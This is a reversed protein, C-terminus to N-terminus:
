AHHRHSKLQSRPALLIRRQSAGDDSAKRRGPYKGKENDRRGVQEHVPLTLDTSFAYYMTIASTPCEALPSLPIVDTVELPSDIFCFYLYMMAPSTNNVKGRHLRACRDLLVEM